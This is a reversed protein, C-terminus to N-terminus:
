VAAVISRIQQAHERDHHAANELVSLVSYEERGIAGLRYFSAEDIGDLAAMLAQRSAALAEVADSVSAPAHQQEPPETAPLERLRSVIRAYFWESEIVHQLVRQVSWGGRRARALADDALGAIAQLLEARTTDLENRAAALDEDLATSM